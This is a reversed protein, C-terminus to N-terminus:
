YNAAGSPSTTSRLRWACEGYYGSEVYLMNYPLSNVYQIDASGAASFDGVDAFYPGKRYRINDVIEPIVYNLDLYGQGHGTRRSTRRFATSRSPLIRGTISNSVASSTSIRRARGM